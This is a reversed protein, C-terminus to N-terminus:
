MKQHPLKKQKLVTSSDPPYCGETPQGKICGSRLQLTWDRGRSQLSVNESWNGLKWVAGGNKRVLGSQTM